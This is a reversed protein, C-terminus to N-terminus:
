RGFLSNIISKLTVSNSNKNNKIVEGTVVVEGGGGSDSIGGDSSSVIESGGSDSVVNEGGGSSSTSESEGESSTEMSEGGSEGDNDVKINNSEGGTEKVGAENAEDIKQINKEVENIEQKMEQAQGTDIGVEQAAKESDDAIKEIQEPNIYDVKGNEDVIVKEGTKIREENIRGAIMKCDTVDGVGMEMCEKPLIVEEYEKPQNGCDEGEKCMKQVQEVKEVRQVQEIKEIKIGKENMITKCEEISVGMCEEPMNIGIGQEVRKEQMFNGCEETSTVEADQCEKPVTDIILTQKVKNQCEEPSVTTREDIMCEKPIRGADTPKPLIIGLKALAADCSDSRMFTNSAIEVSNGIICVKPIEEVNLGNRVLYEMEAGTPVINEGIIIVACKEPDYEGASKCEEPYKLEIKIQECEERSNAGQCDSPLKLKECSEPTLAGADVCEKPLNQNLTMAECEKKTYFGADKCPRPLNVIEECAASDYVGREKCEGSMLEWEEGTPKNAEKVNKLCQSSDVLKGDVVCEKIVNGEKVLKEKCKENGVYQGNELCESEPQNLSLILKKCEEGDRIRAESCEAPLYKEIIQKEIEERTPEDNGKLGEKKIDEIKKCASSDGQFECRVASAKYEECNAKESALSIEDCNCQNPNNMCIAIQEKIKEIDQNKETAIKETVMKEMWSYSKCNEDNIILNYDQTALEKCYNFTKESLDVSLKTKEEETLYEDFYQSIESNINKNEKIKDQMEDVNLRVEEATNPSVREQVIKLKDKAVELDRIVNENNRAKANEIASDIEKERIELALKVKGDGSSFFLKINDTFKNFGSYTQASVVPVLLLILLTATLVTLALFTVDRKACSEM